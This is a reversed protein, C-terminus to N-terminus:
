IRTIDSTDRTLGQYALMADFDSEVFERLILHETVFEM